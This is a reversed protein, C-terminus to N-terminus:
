LNEIHQGLDAVSDIVLDPKITEVEHRIDRFNSVSFVDYHQKLHDKLLSVITADDEIIYIKEQKM